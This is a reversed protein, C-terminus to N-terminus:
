NFIDGSDDTTDSSDSYFSEKVIIQLQATFDGCTITIMSTGAAHLTISGNNDVTVVAEDSSSYTVPTTADYPEKYYYDSVYSGWYDDLYYTMTPVGDVMELWDTYIQMDTAPIEKVTVNVTGVKTKTGNYEEFVTIQTTGLAVGRIKYYSGWRDEEYGASVIGEDASTCTYTASYNYFDILVASTLYNSSNIGIIIKESSPLIAAGMVKITISGLQVTKKNFTETVSVTTTGKKVGSVYGYEDVTAIKTNASKFKYVAQPNYYKIFIQAYGSSAVAVSMEKEAIKGTVVNVSFSGLKVTKGKYKESVSITTKGYKLGTITGYQDVKAIKTDASKFTYVANYNMYNVPASNTSNLGVDVSKEAIKPGVVSVSVKGVETVVGELTQKVTITTKGKAVGNIAGYESITAIKPNDSTYSYVAGENIGILYIYEPSSSVGVTAETKELETKLQEAKVEQVTLSGIFPVFSLFTPALLTIVLLIAFRRFVRKM